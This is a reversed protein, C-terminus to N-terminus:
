GKVEGTAALEFENASINRSVIGVVEATNAASAVAKAYTSGNLYLVDGVAFGHSNQNILVGTSTTGFAVGYGQFIQPM